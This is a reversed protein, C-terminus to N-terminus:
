AAALTRLADIDTVVLGRRRSRILGRQKWEALVPTISSRALTLARALEEQTLPVSLRDPHSTGAADVVALILDALQAAPRRASLQWTHATSQRVKALIYRDLEAAAAHRQVLSRFDGGPISYGVCPEIAQVTASRPGADRLAFEGLLDGPGRVALLVQSGDSASYWVATRGAVQLVIWRGEDGQRLLRDGRRYTHRVGARVLREWAGSGLMARLGRGDADEVAETTRM